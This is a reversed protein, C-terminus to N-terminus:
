TSIYSVVMDIFPEAKKILDYDGSYLCWDFAIGRLVTFIYLVLDDPRMHDSIQGVAQGEEILIKLVRQMGRGKEIFFTNTPIYLNRILDIGDDSVFKIYSEMYERIKDPYSNPKLGNKIETDFYNDAQKYIEYLIDNKSPFYYYFLGVSVEAAKCIDGIAVKDFGDREILELATKYIRNKTQIAKLERSTLEKERM